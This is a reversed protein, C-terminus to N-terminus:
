GRPMVPIGVPGVRDFLGSLRPDVTWRAGNWPDVDVRVTFRPGGAGARDAVYRAPGPEVRFTRSDRPGVHGLLEGDRFVQVTFPMPNQVVLQARDPAAVKVRTTRFPNAILDDRSVVRGDLLRTVLVQRGAEVGSLVREGPRVTGLDGGDRYSVRVTRGTRNEYLVEATRPPRLASRELEMADQEFSRRLYVTGDPGKLVLEHVGPAFPGIVEEAGPAIGGFPRGDVLARVPEIWHNEVELLGSGTRPLRVHETDRRRLSLTADYLELTRGGLAYTARLDHRGSALPGIRDTEGPSLRARFEGDVTVAVAAPSPNHIRIWADAYPAVTRAEHRDRAQGRALAVTPVLTALAVVLPLRALLLRTM